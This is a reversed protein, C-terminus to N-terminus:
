AIITYLAGLIHIRLKIQLHIGTGSPIEGEPLLGNYPVARVREEKEALWSSM